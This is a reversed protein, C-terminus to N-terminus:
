PGNTTLPKRNVANAASRRLVAYSTLIGALVGLRGLYHNFDAFSLPETGVAGKEHRHFVPTDRIDPKWQISLPEKYHPIEFSHIDEPKTIGDEKFANDAFALALLNIIPCIDYQGAM